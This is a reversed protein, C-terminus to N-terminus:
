EMGLKRLHMEENMVARTCNCQLVKVIDLERMLNNYIISYGNHAIKFAQKKAKSEAIKMGLEQNFTDEKSCIAIGSVRFDYTYPMGIMNKKPIIKWNKPIYFYKFDINLYGELVCTVTGKDENIYYKGDKFVVRTKM